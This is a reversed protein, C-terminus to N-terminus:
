VKVKQLNALKKSSINIKVLLIVLVLYYLFLYLGSVQFNLYGWSFKNFFFVSNVFIDLLVYLPIMAISSIFPSFFTVLLFLSGFITTFSVTWLILTNVLLSILSVTGFYYSIIPWVLLQASLGAIFDEALVFSPNHLLKTIINSFLILGLTAMFSLRFSLNFFYMPQIIIMILASTVLVLLTDMGRGYYKGWSIISGMVLARIVPPEFGTLVSYVFTMCQAILVNKLKYRSGLLKLVSDFVLSINFGSVVVVHITGTNKLATKFSPVNKLKDLGVTMGLLLESHPSPFSKDIFLVCKERIYEFAYLNVFSPMEIDTPCEKIFCNFDIRYISFIILLILFWYHRLM